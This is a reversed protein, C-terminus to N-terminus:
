DLILGVPCHDSGYIDPQVFAKKVRAQLNPSVWFYDIRWGANRQRAFTKQDWYSYHGGDKQFMRFTDIFGAQEFKDLWVREIPMFGSNDINEKPRALDIEHHATNLDGCFVIRKKQALLKKMYALFEKYFQLKYKLRVEGSGGNPFYINFLLFDGFDLEMMRGEQTLLNKGFDMTALRPKVKTYVAVASYGKNTNCCSWFSTYGDAQMLETSLISPDHVKTEQICIIDAPEKKIWDLFGKREAARIGNVNWSLLTLDKHKDAM